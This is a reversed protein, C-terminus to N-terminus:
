LNAAIQWKRSIIAGIWSVRLKLRLSPFRM